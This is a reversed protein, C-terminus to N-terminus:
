WGIREQERRREMEELRKTRSQHSELEFTVAVDVPADIRFFEVHKEGNFYRSRFHQGFRKNLAESMCTAFDPSGTATVTFRPDDIRASVAVKATQKKAPAPLCNTAEDIAYHKLTQADLTVRPWLKITKQARLTWVGAGFDAFTDKANRALCADVIANSPSSAARVVFGERSSTVDVIVERAIVGPAPSCSPSWRAVREDLLKQPSTFDLTLLFAFTRINGDFAHRGRDLGNAGRAFCRAFPASSKTSVNIAGDDDTQVVVQLRKMAPHKRACSLAIIDKASVITERASELTPPRAYGPQIMALEDVTFGHASAWAVLPPEDIDRVHAYEFRADISRALDTHGSDALLQGVACHVGRDDIFRPRRGDYADDTRRPFVGREIYRVLDALSATRAMRQAPSLASVDRDALMAHVFRLHTRIRTVEDGQDPPYTRGAWSADGVVVNIERDARASGMGCVLLVVAFVLRM